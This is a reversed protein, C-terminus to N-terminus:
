NVRYVGIFDWAPYCYNHPPYVYWTPLTPACSTLGAYAPPATSYWQGCGSLLIGSVVVTAVSMNKSFAM